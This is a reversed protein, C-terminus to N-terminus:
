YSTDTKQKIKKFQKIKEGQKELQVGGGVCYLNKMQGRSSEVLYM